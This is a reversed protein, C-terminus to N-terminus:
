VGATVVCVLAVVVRCGVKGFAHALLGQPAVVKIGGAGVRRRKVGGKLHTLSVCLCHATQGM